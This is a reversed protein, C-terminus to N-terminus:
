HQGTMVVSSPISAVPALNFVSSFAALKSEQNEGQGNSRKEIIPFVIMKYKNKFESENIVEKFLRAIHHPPNKFAGCGFAGLVISDHGHLIGIRLITRMKNKIVAADQPSLMAKGTDAKWRLDLAAVAIFSLKFPHSLFPNGESDRGRFVTAFPTYIGGFNRDMPYQRRNQEVGYSTAVPTFQYLSRFLDTQRFLSEEQAHSGKLAGGGAHHRNAFNLVVPRYGADLLQKGASISDTKLICVTTPTDNAPFDNVTFKRDYFRSNERMERDDGLTVVTGDEATYQGVMVANITEQYVKALQEKSPQQFNNSM